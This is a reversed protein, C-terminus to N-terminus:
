GGGATGAAVAVGGAAVVVVAGGVAAVGRVAAGAVAVVAAGDFFVEGEQQQAVVEVLSRDFVGVLGVCPGVGGGVVVVWVGCVIEVMMVVFDWGESRCQWRTGRLTSSPIRPSARIITASAPLDM